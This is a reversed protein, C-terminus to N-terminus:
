GNRAEALDGRSPTSDGANFSPDAVVNAAASSLEDVRGSPTMRSKSTNKSFYAATAVSGVLVGLLFRFM